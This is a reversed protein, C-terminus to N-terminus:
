PAMPWRDFFSGLDMRAPSARRGYQYFRRYQDQVQIRPRDGTREIQVATMLNLVDNFLSQFYTGRTTDNLFIPYARALAGYVLIQRYDDPILPETSGSLETNLTRRYSVELRYIEDPYPHIVLQRQTTPDGTTQFDVVTALQPKGESVDWVKLAAMDSPGVLELPWTHGYRRIMLLRACDTPLDYEDGWVNYAAATNTAGTYVADLTAATAGATHASVRFVAGSDTTNGSVYFKRRIVSPTPASSFTIATSNNTVSVTGATIDNVTAVTTRKTLWWWDTKAAVDRYVENIVAAIKTQETTNSVPIRLQNMVRTEVNAYTLPM